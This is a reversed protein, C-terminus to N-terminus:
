CGTASRIATGNWFLTFQPTSRVVVDLVDEVDLRHDRELEGLVPVQDRPRDHRQDVLRLQRGPDTLYEPEPVDLLREEERRGLRPLHDPAHPRDELEGG